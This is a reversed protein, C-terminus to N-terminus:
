DKGECTYEQRYKNWHAMKYRVNLHCNECIPLGIEAAQVDIPKGPDAAIEEPTLGLCRGRLVNMNIYDDREFYSHENGNGEYEMMCYEMCKVILTREAESLDM